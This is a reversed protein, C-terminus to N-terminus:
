LTNQDLVRKLEDMSVPGSRVCEFSSDKNIKIISSPLSKEEYDCLGSPIYFESYISFEKKIEKLNILPTEGKKNISTSIIPSDIYELFDQMWIFEEAWLPNRMALTNNISFNQWENDAVEWIVTLPGPWFHKLM